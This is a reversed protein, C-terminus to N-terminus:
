IIIYKDTKSAHADEGLATAFQVKYCVRRRVFSLLIREIRREYFEIQDQQQASSHSDTPVHIGNQFDTCADSLKM